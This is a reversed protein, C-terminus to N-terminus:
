YQITNVLWHYTYNQTSWDSSLIVKTKDQDSNQSYKNTVFMCSPELEESLHVQSYLQQDRIAEQLGLLDLSEASSYGVVSWEDAGGPKKKMLKRPKYRLAQLPKTLTVKTTKNNLCSYSSSFWRCRHSSTVSQLSHSASRRLVLTYISPVITVSCFSM